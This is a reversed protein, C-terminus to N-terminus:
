ARVRGEGPQAPPPGGAMMRAQEEVEAREAAM